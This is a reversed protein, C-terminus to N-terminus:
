KLAGIYQGVRIPTHHFFQSEQISVKKTCNEVRKEPDISIVFNPKIDEKKLALLSSDTAIIIPNPLGDKILKLSQDLSPGSGVVVAIKKQGLKHWNAPLRSDLYGNLNAFFRSQRLFGNENRTRRARLLTDIEKLIFQLLDDFVQTDKEKVSLSVKIEPPHIPDLLM